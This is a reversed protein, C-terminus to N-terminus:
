EAVSLSCNMPIISLGINACCEFGHIYGESRLQLNMQAIRESQWYTILSDGSDLGMNATHESDTMAQLVSDHWTYPHLMALLLRSM